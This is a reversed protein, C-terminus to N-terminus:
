FIQHHPIALLPPVLLHFILSMFDPMVHSIFINHLLILVDFDRTLCTIALFFVLLAVQLLNTFPMIQYTLFCVAVLLISILMYPHSVLCFKMPLFTVLFLYPCGISPLFLLISRTLGIHYLFMPISYCLLVLKLSTDISVNLAVMKPLPTPILCKTIFESLLFILNFNIARLNLERM